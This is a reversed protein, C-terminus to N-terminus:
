REIAAKFVSQGFVIGSRDFTRAFAAVPLKGAGVLGLCEHTIAGILVLAMLKRLLFSACRAINKKWM